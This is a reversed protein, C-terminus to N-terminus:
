SALVVKLRIPTFTHDIAAVGGLGPCLALGRRSAQPSVLGPPLSRGGAAAARKRGGGPESPM